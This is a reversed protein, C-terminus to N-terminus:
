PKRYHNMSGTIEEILGLYTQILTWGIVSFLALCALTLVWKRERSIVPSRWLLPIALPGLVVFLLIMIGWTHHYWSIGKGKKTGCHRCYADNPGMDGGCHACIETM